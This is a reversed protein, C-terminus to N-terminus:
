SLLANGPEGRAVPDNVTIVADYRNGAAWDKAEAALSPAAGGALPLALGAAVSLASSVLAVSKRSCQLALEHSEGPVYTIHELDDYM